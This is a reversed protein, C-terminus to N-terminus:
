INTVKSIESSLQQRWHFLLHEIKINELRKWVRKGIRMKRVGFYDKKYGNGVRLKQFSKFPGIQILNVKVIVAMISESKNLGNWGLTTNWMSVTMQNANCIM